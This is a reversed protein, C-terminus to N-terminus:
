GKAECPVAFDVHYHEDHRVWSRRTSFKVRGRLEPWADADHLFPQLAPDFIVRSIGVGHERAARDLALLHGALAEYDIRLDGARGEGDFELDYGWKNFVHTPLLVSRGEGDLVPVMFDVSLGYRHTKHPRFRGGSPWGTEGYVFVTEPRREAMASYSDEVIAAVTCHVWTRQLLRGITSYSSYNEGGAPLRCGHELSGDVTTGRCISEGLKGESRVALRTAVVAVAVFGFLIGLVRISRRM